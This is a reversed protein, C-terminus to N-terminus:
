YSLVVRDYLIRTVSTPDVVNMDIDEVYVDTLDGSATLQISKKGTDEFVYQVSDGTIQESEINWSYNMNEVDDEIYDSTEASFLVNHGIVSFSPNIDVDVSLNIKDKQPGFTTEYTENLYDFNNYSSEVYIEYEDTETFNYELKDGSMVFENNVYWSVSIIDKDVLEAAENHLELQTNNHIVNNKLIEDQAITITYDTDMYKSSVNLIDGYEFDNEDLEISFSSESQYVDSINVPQEESYNTVEVTEKSVTGMNTNFEINEDKESVDILYLQENINKYSESLTVTPESITFIAINYREYTPTPIIHSDTTHEFLVEFTNYESNAETLLDNAEFVMFFENNDEDIILDEALSLDYIDPYLTDSEFDSLEMYFSHEEYFDSDKMIDEPNVEDDLASYLSSAQVSIIVYDEDSISNSKTSNRYISNLDIPYNNSLSRIEIESQTPEIIDLPAIDAKEGDIYLEMEYMQPILSDSDLETDKEYSVIETNDNAAEVPQVGQGAIYSDFNLNINESNDESRITVNHSYDEASIKLDVEDIKEIDIEIDAKDGLHADFDGGSFRAFDSPSEIITILQSEQGETSISELEIEFASKDIKSSNIEFVDRNNMSEVKLRDNDYKYVDGGFMDISDYLTESNVGDIQLYSDFEFKNSRVEVFINEKEVTITPEANMEISHNMVQFNSIVEGSEEEIRYEGVGYNSTNINIEGNSRVQTILEDSDGDDIFFNYVTEEEIDESVSLQEGVWYYNGDEVETNDATAIMSGSIIIFFIIGTIILNRLVSM